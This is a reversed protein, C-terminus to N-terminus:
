TAHTPPPIPHPPSTTLEAFPAPETRRGHDPRPVSGKPTFESGSGTVESARLPPIPDWRDHPVPEKLLFARTGNRNGVLIDGRRSSAGSRRPVPIRRDPRADRASRVRDGVAVSSRSRTLTPLGPPRSL